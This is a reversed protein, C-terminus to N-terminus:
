MIEIEVQLVINERAGPYVGHARANAIRVTRESLQQLLRGTVMEDKDRSYRILFVLSESKLGRAASIWDRVPLQLIKRIEADVVATREYPKGEPTSFTLAPIGAPLSAKKMEPSTSM